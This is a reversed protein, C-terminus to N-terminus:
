RNKLTRSASHAGIFGAAEVIEIPDVSHGLSPYVRETLTTHARLWRATDRARDAPIVTDRGGHASFFPPRVAALEPAPTTDIAFGSLQLGYDFMTPSARLLAMAMAGGQSLGLVGLSSHGRQRGVWDLLDAAVRAAQPIGAESLEFWSWGGSPLRYPARPTAVVVEPLLASAVALQREDGRHGHLALLLPRGAREGPPASWTIASEDFTEASV